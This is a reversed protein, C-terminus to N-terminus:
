AALVKGTYTWEFPHALIENWHKAYRYIAKTLAAVDDFSQHRLASRTLIGFWIEVQNRWSGHKPTFVFEVRPHRRLWQDAADGTRTSINHTIIVLRGSRYFRAIHDLFSLVYPTTRDPTVWAVVHGTRVNFAAFINRTGRRQYEFEVRTPQRARMRQTARLRRLAQVGPKEDISLM